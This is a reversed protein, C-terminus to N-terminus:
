HFVRVFRLGVLDIAVDDLPLLDSSQFGKVLVSAESEGSTDVFEALLTSADLAPEYYSVILLKSFVVDLSGYM